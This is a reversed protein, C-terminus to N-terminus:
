QRAPAAMRKARKTAERLTLCEAIERIEGDRVGLVQYREEEAAADRPRWRLRVVVASGVSAVVDARPPM